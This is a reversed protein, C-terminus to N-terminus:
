SIKSLDTTKKRRSCGSQPFLARVGVVLHPDFPNFYLPFLKPKVQPHTKIDAMLIALIGGAMGLFLPDFKLLPLSDGVM